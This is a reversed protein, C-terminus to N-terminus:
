SRALKWRKRRQIALKKVNVNVYPRIM